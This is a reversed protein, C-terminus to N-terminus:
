WSDDGVIGSIFKIIDRNYSHYPLQIREWVGKWYQTNLLNKNQPLSYSNDFHINIIKEIILFYMQIKMNQNRLLNEVAGKNMFSEDIVIEMSYESDLIGSPKNYSFKIIENECKVSNYGRNMKSYELKNSHDLNHQKLVSRYEEIMQEYVQVTRILRNIVDDFSENKNAMNSLRNKTGMKVTLTTKIKNIESSGQASM